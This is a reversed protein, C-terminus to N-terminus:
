CWAVRQAAWAARTCAIVRQGEAQMVPCRRGAIPARPLLAAESIFPAGCCASVGCFIPETTTNTDMTLQHEFSRMREDGPAQLM